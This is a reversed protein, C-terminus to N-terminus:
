LENASNVFNTRSIEYELNTKIEDQTLAGNYVKLSTAPYILINTDTDGGSSANNIMNTFKTYTECYANYIEILSYSGIFRTTGEVNSLYLPNHLTTRGDQVM